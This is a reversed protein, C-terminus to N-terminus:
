YNKLYWQYAMPLGQRLTTKAQWGLDNLRGSDLLKRPTGDPKSSDFVIDGDYGTVAAIKRALASITVEEGSGVNMHSEGDYFKLLHILADALDDVYLFERLPTGTGWLTVKKEGKMKAQHFKLIMAPIVHSNQPDFKDHAGYLNTPMAAIFDCEYQRKYYQCLKVGSIKALAYAENTPELAGTLLAEEVIPQEAMKPYICSSGLYILKEVGAKYVGHIVNQTMALNDYLFAAPDAANAGIGGVRAAAMVVIDPKHAALWDETESQRTLDLQRHPASLIQCDESKLRRLVAQGVMGSEGAVWIKKGGIHYIQELPM